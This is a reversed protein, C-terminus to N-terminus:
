KGTAFYEKLIAVKLAATEVVCSKRILGVKMDIHLHAVAVQVVRHDITALLM